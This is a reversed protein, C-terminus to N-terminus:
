AFQIPAESESQMAKLIRNQVDAPSGIGSVRHYKPATPDSSMALERYYKLLPQTQEHYIALRKRVTEEHDDQRQILPENTVDDLGPNKPPNFKNHYVRGSPAHVLRGSMRTIIDEDPVEINIVHDLDVRSDRLADAQAITRPFGDLLFGNQCDAKAIREKVLNIIIDDPVLGGADVVQKVAQGLPTNDRMAARLMDGTSVQIIQFHAVLLQAQTGKGAGPPGLLM